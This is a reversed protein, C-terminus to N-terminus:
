MNITMTYDKVFNENKTNFDFDSTGIFCQIINSGCIQMWKLKSASLFVSSVLIHSTTTITITHYYPQCSRICDTGIVVLSTLEFGVWTPHVRYLMIHYLLKDTVQPLVTTKEPIGTEEVLLVSRWSIVSISNFTANFMMFWFLFMHGFISLFFCLCLRLLRHVFVSLM